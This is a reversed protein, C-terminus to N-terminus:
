PTLVEMGNADPLKMDLFVISFPARATRAWFSQASEFTEVEYGDKELLPKLRQRVTLEDDVIAIRLVKM